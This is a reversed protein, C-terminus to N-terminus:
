RAAETTELEASIEQALQLAWRDAERQAPPIEGTGRCAILLEATSRRDGLLRIALLGEARHHLARKEEGV